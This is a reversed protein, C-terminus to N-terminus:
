ASPDAIPVKVGFEIRGDKAGATTKPDASVKNAFAAAEGGIGRGPPDERVVRCDSLKGDAVACNLMVVGQTPTPPRAAPDIPLVEMKWARDDRLFDRADRHIAAATVQKLDPVTTRIVDLRRPDSQVSSLANVWYSNTQQVKTFLDVRPAKARDLEDPSVENDRLDATIRAIIRYFLEVKDPPVEAAAEVYGYGPFITSTELTTEPVYSAGEGIRLQDFLRAQIIQELIRMDRSRQPDSFFDPCPWAIVAMAQDPRGKHRRLVPSAPPDPFRVALAEPAPPAPDPRQPLAGFTAAVAAIARDVDIDGVVTVEISGHALPGELMAKMDDPKTFALDLPTVTAWRPDGSHLLMGIDRQVVGGPSAALNNLQPASGARVRDFAEPRWGPATVYAALVQLQTDLDTPTTGGSLIFGDDRTGFSAGYVKSALAELMDDYSADKLGGLLYAGGDVAWRATGRDTPLDLLGRGVKVQVQVQNAAFKTPKITLRVGNAFRLITVGLDAVTQRDTLQGPPGFSAYPWATDREPTAITLPQAEATNFADEVAAQGGQVAVPSAVFVFPGNGRFLRRLGETVQQATLGTTAEGFQALNQAPSAFVRNQDTALLIGAALAPTPRTASGAAAAEYEARYAAIERDVEDQRLGFQLVQRRVTDAAILASNWHPPDTDISLLTLRASRAQDQRLLQASLFPRDPRAALRQLRHNIAALGISEVLNDRVVQRTRQSSDYPAVWGVAISRSLAADIILRTEQGRPPPPGLVPDPGPPGVSTWDAFHARVRAEVLDPDVDGVVILTAREPRYYARYFARLADVSAHQINDQTGIPLHTALPQGKYFFALEARSARFGPTDRTRMESLIAGREAELAEPKFLIESATERMRMLGTDLTVIDAHPLDFQYFTMTDSTFASADAGMAMGLRQLGKWEDSQPVHTTGRFAMHEVMHAQGAQAETETLSGAAIRFRISVEDKPTANRMIAYRMGNALVGFRIAPDAPLDSHAQPWDEIPPTAAPASAAAFVALAAILAGLGKLGTRRWSSDM